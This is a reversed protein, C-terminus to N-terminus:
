RSIWKGLTQIYIGLFRSSENVFLQDNLVNSYALIVNLHMLESFIFTVISPMVSDYSLLM